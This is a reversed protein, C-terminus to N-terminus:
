PTPTEEASAGQTRLNEAWTRATAATESEPALEIHQEFAALAADPQGEARYFIGANYYAPAFEPSGEIVAEITEIAQARQESYFYAVALDTAVNPDGPEVDLAREYHAVAANWMPLDFGIGAQGLENRVQLAWDFYADATAVLVTYSTPESQLMVHYSNVTPAYNQAVRELVAGTETAEPAQPQGGGMFFVPVATVIFALIVFIITAKVWLASQRKNIAM